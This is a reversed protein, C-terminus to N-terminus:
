PFFFFFDRRLRESKKDRYNPTGSVRGIWHLRICQYILCIFIHLSFILKNCNHNLIASKKGQRKSDQETFLLVSNIRQEKRKVQFEHFVTKALYWKLIDNLSLLQYLPMMELSLSLSSTLEWPCSCPQPSVRLLCQCFLSFCPQWPCVPHPPQWRCRQEAARKRFGCWWSLILPLIFM